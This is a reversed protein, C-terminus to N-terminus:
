LVDAPEQLRGLVARARNADRAMQEALAAGSPFRRERRLRAAFAVRMRRGVLPRRPEGELLHVELGRPGDLEFTPRVGINAVAAQLRRLGAWCAYVGDAPLLKGAPAAVNATPWGLRRGRGRGTQVEGEVQYPRGLRRWAGEADGRALLTRIQTSSVPEGDVMVRPVVGLRFGRRRALRRLLATTGEGGAGFRWGEGVHLCCARLRGLLAEEIFREADMGALAEDFRAIVVLEVGLGRLLALKEETTTLLGPGGAASLVADPHPEFTLVAPSAGEEAAARVAERIIAQHGLHVGDLVGIALCLPRRPRARELGRVVRM